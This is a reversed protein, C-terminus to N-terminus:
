PKDFVYRSGVRSVLVISGIPVDGAPNLFDDSLDIAEMEAGIEVPMSGPPGIEVMRVKYANYSVLSKVKCSFTQVRAGPSVVGQVEQMQTEEM